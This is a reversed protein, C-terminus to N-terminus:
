LPSSGEDPGGQADEGVRFDVLMGALVDDLDQENLPERPGGGLALAANAWMTAEQVATAFLSKERGPPLISAVAAGAEIMLKRVTEHGKRKLDTDAPHFGLRHEFDERLVDMQKEETSTPIGQPYQMRLLALHGATM